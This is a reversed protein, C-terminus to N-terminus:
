PIQAVLLEAVIAFGVRWFLITQKLVECLETKYDKDVPAM